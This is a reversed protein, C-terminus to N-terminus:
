QIQSMFAQMEKEYQTEDVSESNESLKIHEKVEEVSSVVFPPKEEIKEKMVTVLSSNFASHILKQIQAYVSDDIKLTMYHM